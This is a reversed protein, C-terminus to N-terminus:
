ACGRVVAIGANDKAGSRLEAQSGNNTPFFDWRSTHTGRADKQIIYLIGENERVSLGMAAGACRAFDAAIKPSDLRAAVYPRSLEGKQVVCGGLLAAILVIYKM